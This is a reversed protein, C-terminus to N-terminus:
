TRSIQCTNNKPSIMYLVFIVLIIIGAYIISIGLMSLAIVTLVSVIILAFVPTLERLIKVVNIEQKVGRFKKERRTLYTVNKSVFSVYKLKAVHHSGKCLM